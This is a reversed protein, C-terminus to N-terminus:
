LLSTSQHILNKRNQSNPFTPPYLRSSERFMFDRFSRSWGNWFSVHRLILMSFTTETSRFHSIGVFWPGSIGINLLYMRHLPICTAWDLCDRKQSEYIEAPDYHLSVFHSIWFFRPYAYPRPGLDRPAIFLLQV